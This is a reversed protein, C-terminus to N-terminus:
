ELPACQDSQSTALALGGDDIGLEGRNHRMTAFCFAFSLACGMCRFGLVYLTDTVPDQAIRNAIMRIGRDVEVTAVIPGTCSM